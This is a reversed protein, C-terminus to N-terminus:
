QSHAVKTEVESPRSPFKAPAKSRALANMNRYLLMTATIIFEPFHFARMAAWMWEHLVSPPAARFDCLCAGCEQRGPAAGWHMINFDAELVNDM